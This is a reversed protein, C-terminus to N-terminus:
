EVYNIKVKVFNSYPRKAPTSEGDSAKRKKGAKFGNQTPQFHLTRTLLRYKSLYVM